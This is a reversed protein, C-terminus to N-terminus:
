YGVVIRKKGVKDRYGTHVNQVSVGDIDQIVDHGISDENDHYETHIHVVELALEETTMAQLKALLDAGSM